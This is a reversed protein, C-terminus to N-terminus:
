KSELKISEIHERVIKMCWDPSPVEIQPIDPTYRFMHTSHYENLEVVLQGLPTLYTPLRGKKMAMEYATHLDHGVDKLKKDSEGCDLCIAKISLELSFCLLLYFAPVYTQDSDVLGAFIDATAAYSKANQLLNAATTM